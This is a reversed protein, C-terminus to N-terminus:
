SALRSVEDEVRRFRRGLSLLYGFLLAWVVAFAIYVHWHARLTRAPATRQPLGAPYPEAGGGMASASARASDAGAQGASAPGDRAGARDGITPTAVPISPETDMPRVSDASRRGPEQGAAPAAIQPHLVLLAALVLPRM